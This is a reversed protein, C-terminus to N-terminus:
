ASVIRFQVKVAATNAIWYPATVDSGFWYAVVGGAPIYVTDNSAGTAHRIEVYNTTDLNEVVIHALAATVEGLPIAEESTGVSILGSSVKKNASDFSVDIVGMEPLDAGDDDSYKQVCSITLEDAM